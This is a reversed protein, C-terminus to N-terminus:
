LCVKSYNITFLIYSLHWLNILIQRFTQRFQWKQQTRNQNHSNNKENMMEDNMKIKEYAMMKNTGMQILEKTTQIDIFM